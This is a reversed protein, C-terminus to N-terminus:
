RVWKGLQRKADEHPVGKGEHIEKEGCAFKARVYLARLIDGFTAENPLTDITRKAIDKDSMTMGLM